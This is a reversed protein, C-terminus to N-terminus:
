RLDSFLDMGKLKHHHTKLELISARTVRICNITVKNSYLKDQAHLMVRRSTSARAIKM